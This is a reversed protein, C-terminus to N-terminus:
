TESDTGSSLDALGVPGFANGAGDQGFPEITSGITMAGNHTGEGDSVLISFHLEDMAGLGLFNPTIAQVNPDYYLKFADDRGLCVGYSVGWNSTVGLPSDSVLATGASAGIFLFGMDDQRIAVHAWTNGINRVTARNIQGAGAPGNGWDVDGAVSAEMGLDVSGYAIGTFDVEIGSVAVYNFSGELADARNGDHDVAWVRVAYDGAPDDYAVTEKGVWLAATGQSIMGDPGALEDLGGTSAPAILGDLYAANILGAAEVPDDIRTFVVRYKFRSGTGDPDTRERYPSPSDTPYYAYCFVEQLDGGDEPDAVVAYYHVTKVTGYVLTPNIQPGTILHDPDGSELETRPEQQWICLVAPALDTDESQSFSAIVTMNEAMTVTTAPSAPDGVVGTWNDFQWGDAPTATIAVVEGELYIHEGEAPMTEGSGVVAMILTYENTPVITDDQTFLADVAEDGDITISTTTTGGSFGDFAWGAEPRPTLTVVDGWYYTEQDPSLDVGGSGTIHVTLTCEIRSFSGTVTRNDSMTVTTNCSAPDAVAGTWNDFQWGDAPLATIDVVEGEPFSHEGVAPTTQGSGAVGMTLVLDDALRPTQEEQTFLANVGKDGDMTIANTTTGGSFGDFTWGAEAEPTLIVVDGWYYTEQDPSLDVGGSGTIHVTLTCEIRSFSGTVTRNDSMTVTTNCSAPDAVAGTWNDFQWGDAPLATIDVVEGEPFSHEGVAPTTQGSGAVGMTLVLDDALRPTQEEQTFLANVGKDGDMTIANTTTDGSFGDFAWGAEPQPTLTVVDGWYYTEQDPSLDVGGSGTIHVTLTCEIRSFSGTVTRNDSMTVTTNCSAPDAVAGTWNDFQWGDAPLATIDVVEGEPFSHEGIAPTTQGNGIVEMTLSCSSDEAHVPTGSVVMCVLLLGIALSLALRSPHM